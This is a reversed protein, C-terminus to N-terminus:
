LFRVGGSSEGFLNLAREICFSLGVIKGQRNCPSMAVIARDRLGVITETKISTLLTRTDKFRHPLPTDKPADDVGQPKL